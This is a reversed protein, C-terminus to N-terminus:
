GERKRVRSKREGKGRNVERFRVCEKETERTKRRERRERVVMDGSRRFALTGPIATWPKQTMAETTLRNGRESTLTRIRLFHQTSRPRPLAVGCHQTLAWQTGKRAHPPGEDNKEGFLHKGNDM